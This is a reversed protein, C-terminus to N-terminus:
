KRGEFGSKLALTVITFLAIYIGFIVAEFGDATPDAVLKWGNYAAVACCVIELIALVLYSSPQM